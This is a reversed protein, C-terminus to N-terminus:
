KEKFFSFICYIFLHNNFLFNVLKLSHQLDGFYHPIYYSFPFIEAFSSFTPQFLLLISQFGHVTFLVNAQQIFRVLECPSRRVEDHSLLSVLSDNSFQVKFKNRLELLSNNNKNTNTVRALDSFFKEELFFNFKQLVERQNLMKRKANRQYIVVKNKRYFKDWFSSIIASNFNKRDLIKSHHNHTQNM